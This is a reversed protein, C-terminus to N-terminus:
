ALFLVRVTAPLRVQRRHNTLRANGPPQLGSAIVITFRCWEDISKACPEAISKAIPTM